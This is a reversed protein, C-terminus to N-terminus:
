RPSREAFDDQFEKLEVANLDSVAWFTLGAQQWGLINYGEIAGPKPVHSGSPWLFLNIVHNHRKYILAAVVRNDIYDLRGGVLPFSQEALDVVPPAFDIKGLFWPKVTHQDSTQVDTLHSALLSRVHGAVLQKAIDDGEVPRTIVVALALSAALALGSPVMAWGQVAERLRSLWGHRPAPKAPATRAEEQALSAVIRARLDDPARWAVGGGALAARLAHLQELEGTCAPCRAIHAECRLIDAADLEGDVLPHLLASEECPPDPQRTM